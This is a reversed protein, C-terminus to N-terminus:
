ARAKAFQSVWALVDGIIRDRGVEMLLEHYCDDYIKMQKDTVPAQHYFRKSTEPDVLMDDAAQMLSFPIAVKGIDEFVERQAKVTAVFWGATATTFVLPDERYAEVVQRDHSIWGPDIGSPMSLNPVVRSVVMALGRKWVPVPVRLGLFPSSFIASKFDRPHTEIFRAVVLGGMSHGMILWPADDGTLSKWHDAAAKVDTVYQRYDQLAGRAGQSHGHGRLDLRFVNVASKNLAEVVHNYRNAHDAFGHIFVLNALPEPVTDRYLKLGIGDVPSTFTENLHEAKRKTPM